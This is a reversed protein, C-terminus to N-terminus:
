YRASDVQEIAPVVRGFPKQRRQLLIQQVLPKVSAAEIKPPAPSRLGRSASAVTEINAAAFAM